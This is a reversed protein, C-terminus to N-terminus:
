SYSLTTDCEQTFNNMRSSLSSDKFNNDLSFKSKNNNIVHRQHTHTYASALILLIDSNHADSNTLSINCDHDVRWISM